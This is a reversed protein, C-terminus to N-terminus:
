KVTIGCKKMTKIFEHVFNTTDVETRKGCKPCSFEYTKKRLLEESKVKIKANCGKCPLEIQPIQKCFAEIYKDM